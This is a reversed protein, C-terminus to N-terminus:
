ALNKMAVCIFLLAQLVTAVANPLWVGIHRFRIGYFFWFLYVFAFGILHFWSLSSQAGTVWEHYLQIAIFV